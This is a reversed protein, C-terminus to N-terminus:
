AYPAASLAGIAPSITDLKKLYFGPLAAVLGERSIKKADVTVIPDGLADSVLAADTARLFWSEFSYDMMVM